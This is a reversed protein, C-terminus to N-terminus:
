FIEGKEIRFIYCEEMYKLFKYASPLVDYEYVEELDTEYFNKEIIVGAKEMYILMMAMFDIHKKCYFNKDFIIRIKYM